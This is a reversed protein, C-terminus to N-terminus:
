RPRRLGALFEEAPIVHGAAGEAIGERIATRLLARETESPSTGVAHQAALTVTIVVCDIAPGRGSVGPCFIRVTLSRQHVARAMFSAM